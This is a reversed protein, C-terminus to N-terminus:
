IVLDIDISYFNFINFSKRVLNLGVASKVSTWNIMGFPKVFPTTVWKKISHLHNWGFGLEKKVLYEDILRKYGCIVKSQCM